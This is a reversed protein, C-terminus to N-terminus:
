RVIYRNIRIAYNKKRGTEYRYSGCTLAFHVRKLTVYVANYKFVIPATKPTCNQIINGLLSAHIQYKIRYVRPIKADEWKEM